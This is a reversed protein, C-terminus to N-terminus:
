EGGTKTPLPELNFSITTIKKDLGQVVEATLDNTMNGGLVSGRNLLLGCHHSAYASAVVSQAETGIRQMAKVRTLQIRQNIQGAQTQFSKMRQQLAKGQQERESTSLSAAKGQFAQIDADLPKRQAGLQNNEQQALQQLRQTAAKGVQSQAFVAERSLMCVGPIANGGLTDAAHVPVVPALSVGAVAVAAAVILLRDLNM